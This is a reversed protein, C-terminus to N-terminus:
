EIKFKSVEVALTNIHEKNQASIENIRSVATNIQETEAAMDNVGRSIEQTVLELNKSEKIVQESGEMM